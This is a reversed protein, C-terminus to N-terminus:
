LSFGIPKKYEKPTLPTKPKKGKTKKSGISKFIKRKTINSADKKYKLSSSMLKEHKVLYYLPKTTNDLKVWMVIGTSGLRKAPKRHDPLLNNYKKSIAMAQLKSIKWIGQKANKAMNLTRQAIHIPTNIKHSKATWSTKKRDLPRSGKMSHRNLPDKWSKTINEDNKECISQINNVNENLLKNILINFNNM